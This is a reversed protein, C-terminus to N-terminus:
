AARRAAERARTTGVLEIFTEAAQSATRCETQNGNRGWGIVAFRYGRDVAETYHGVTTDHHRLHDYATLIRSQKLAAEVAARASDHHKGM